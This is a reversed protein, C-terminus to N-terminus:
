ARARWRRRCRRAPCTACGAAGGCAATPTTQKMAPLVKARESSPPLAVTGGPACALELSAPVLRPVRRKAEQCCGILNAVTVPPHYECVAQLAQVQAPDASCPCSSSCLCPPPSGRRLRALKAALRLQGASLDAPGDASGAAIASSSALCRHPGSSLRASKASPPLRVDRAQRLCADTAIGSSEATLDYDSCQQYLTEPLVHDRLIMHSDLCTRVVAAPIKGTHAWHQSGAARKNASARHPRCWALCTRCASRCAQSRLASGRAFCFM